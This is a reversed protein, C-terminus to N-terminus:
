AAIPLQFLGHCHSQWDYHELGVATIKSGGSKEAPTTGELSQPVRFENYYTKWEELKQELDMKNWFFTRDLYERRVTGILREVFPHSVSAYPVSRVSEIGLIRLNAQWRQFEFLPDHDYSLRKPLPQGVIAQNFMRCLVPGDVAVAQVGFGIIRRTFVDMVILVWHSRLLISETRFLDVSWLSDKAHGFLTLWSPGGDRGDTRCHTALVRRVIDKDLQIGFCKALEQAIKRCGLHPNRRKLEVIAQILDQGPGKPGPKHQRSSSYLWKLKLKTLARHCRLLPSPKILIATHVVRRPRLFLSGLGFLLRDLSHLNPARRRSRRAIMLQHKLLLNEAVLAKAGGSKLLKGLSSALQFLLLLIHQMRSAQM